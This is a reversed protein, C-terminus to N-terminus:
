DPAHELTVMVGNRPRLTFMIHPEVPHDPMLRLRYRQMVLAVILPMEMMAFDEGICTRPGAGFPFFSFEPRSQSYKPSFREPDFRAPDNWLDTRRHTLYPSMLIVSDRAIRFGAIEDAEAATRLMMWAPPFLRLVEQVVTRTYNLAALDHMVPIRGGITQELEERLKLEVTPNAAILYWTWALAVATTESAAGLFTVVADRLQTETLKQDIPAHNAGLLNALLHAERNERSPHGDILTGVIRKITRATEAFGCNCPAPVWEPLAIPRFLLHNFHEFAATIAHALTGVDDAIDAGCFARCAITLTLRTMEHAIDLVEEREVLGQWRDLMAEAEATIVAAALGIRDRHLAPQVLRRQRRWLDGETSLLGDGGGLQFVRVIRSDGAYNKNHDQLVHKIHAPHTLLWAESFGAKLKVVDGLKGANVFFGLPDRRLDAFFRFPSFYRLTPPIRQVPAARRANVALDRFDRQTRVPSTKSSSNGEDFDDTCRSIGSRQVM